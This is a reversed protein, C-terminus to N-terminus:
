IESITKEYYKAKEYYPKSGKMKVISWVNEIQNLDPGVALDTPATSYVSPMEASLYSGRWRYSM